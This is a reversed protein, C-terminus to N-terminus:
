LLCNQIHGIKELKYKLPDNGLDQFIVYSTLANRIVARGLPASLVRQIWTRNLYWDDTIEHDDFIM